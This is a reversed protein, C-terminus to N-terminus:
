SQHHEVLWKALTSAERDPLLDIPIRKELDILITGFKRGRRFSWDDVGLVRPTTQKMEPSARVLRLLSDPSTHLCLDESLRKGAEGGLAFGIFTLADALRTTRRAYAAVMSPLRETFIAQSCASNTCFFRRTHLRLRMRWNMWPLDAIQRQYRSHVRVSHCQCRPCAAETATTAVVATMIQPEAELSLLQVCSLDPLLAATSM